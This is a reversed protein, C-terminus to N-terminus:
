TLESDPINKLYDPLPGNYRVVDRLMLRQVQLILKEAQNLRKIMPYAVSDVLRATQEDSLSQALECLGELFGEATTGDQIIKQKCALEGVLSGVKGQARM